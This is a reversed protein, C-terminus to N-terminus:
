ESIVPFRHQRVHTFDRGITVVSFGPEADLEFVTDAQGPWAHLQYWSSLVSSYVIGDRWTQTQQHIHGYFVGRLRQRASCLIAHLDDGNAMRMYDDLWPVGTPIVNHHVAVVLPRPDQAECIVRLWDLQQTSVMGSPQQAPGTSDLCVIQVGNIDLEYHLTPQVTERQLFIRQLMESEDHNGPIYYVPAKIQSLLDRALVYRRADPASVIDGTHLVFDPTFPLNNLQSILSDVGSRPHYAAGM